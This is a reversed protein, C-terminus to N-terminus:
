LGAGVDEKEEEEKQKIAEGDKISEYKIGIIPRYNKGFLTMQVKTNDTEFESRYILHESSVALGYNKPNDKFLDNFWFNDDEYPEGYRNTLVKKLKNYKSISLLDNPYDGIIYIGGKVLKNDIFEYGLLAEEGTIETAYTLSNESEEADGGEIAKVEEKSMGWKVKRFAYGEDGDAYVVGSVLMLMVLVLIVKRM